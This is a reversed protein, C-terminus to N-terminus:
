LSFERYSQVIDSVGFPMERAGEGAAERNEFWWAALQCVAEQLAPPVPDQGEGGFRAAIKYGLLREIHNQAAEIKRAILLADDFELTDITFALQRRLDEQTVIAM